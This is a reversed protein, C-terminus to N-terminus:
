LGLSFSRTTNWTECLFLISQGIQRLRICFQTTRSISDGIRWLSGPDVRWPSNGLDTKAEPKLSPHGPDVRVTVPTTVPTHGPDTVPTLEGSTVSKREREVRISNHVSSGAAVTTPLCRDAILWPCIGPLRLICPVVM